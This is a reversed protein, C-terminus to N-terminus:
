PAVFDTSNFSKDIVPAPAQSGNYQSYLSQASSSGAASFISGMAQFMSAQQRDRGSQAAAIGGAQAADAEANLARAKDEGQYLSLAAEYTTAGANRALTNINSVDTAGGTGSNAMIAIAKSQVLAGQRREEEAAAEGAAMAQGANVRDQAAKYNDMNQESLGANKAANGANISGAISVVAAAIPVWAM